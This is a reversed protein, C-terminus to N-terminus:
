NKSLTEDLNLLVRAAITWAAADQPTADSPVSPVQETEGTAVENISLWGDALRQRQLKLLALIESREASKPRRGTCLRFAYDTRQEDNPGGERLIRLAMARAAEVFIPENLSVLASLPTNSRTRRACALDANPADFSTLIPDPM